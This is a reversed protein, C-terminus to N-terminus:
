SRPRPTPWAARGCSSPPWSRWSTRPSRGPQRLVPRRRRPAPGARGRHRRPAGRRLGGRGARPLDAGRAGGRAQPRRGRDPPPRLSAPRRGRPDGAQARRRGRGPPEAPPRRGARCRVRRTLPHHPPRIRIADRGLGRSPLVRPRPGADYSWAACLVADEGRTYPRACPPGLGLQRRRTRVQGLPRSIHTALTTAPLGAEAAKRLLADELHSWGRSPRRPKLGIARRRAVIADESRELERAVVALPAGARYLRRLREDEDLRWRRAM